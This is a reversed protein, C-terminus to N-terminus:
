SNNLMIRKKVNNENEELNRQTNYEDMRLEVLEVADFSEPASM